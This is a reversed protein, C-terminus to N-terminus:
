ARLCFRLFDTGGEEDSYAEFVENLFQRGGGSESFDSDCKDLKSDPILPPNQLTAQTSTRIM